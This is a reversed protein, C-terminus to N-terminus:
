EELDLISLGLLDPWSETSNSLIVIGRQMKPNFGLFSRFGATGGNHWIIDGNHSHSVIWGLGIDFGSSDAAFQPKQCRKLLDTLPSDLLGMSASLFRTMDSINSHIGGCGELALNDWGESEEKKHYGKAVHERMEETLTLVTNGMGLKSCIRNCILEEYTQDVKRSLIHGLLGVGLNSYEFKEGPERKLIHNSLFAYLEEARYDAYPNMPNKPHFNEPLTPLGSYHTALHRLTIKKGNMEPTKIGPLYSEISADLEVEGNAVMDMLILTTFVKTISGIEFITEESIPEDDQISKKGYSYFTTTGHDILGVVAGVAGSEDVHKQILAQVDIKTVDSAYGSGFTIFILSLLASLFKNRVM